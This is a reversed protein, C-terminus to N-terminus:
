TENSLKVYGAYGYPFLSEGSATVALLVCLFFLYFVKSPTQKSMKGNTM